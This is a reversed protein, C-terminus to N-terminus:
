YINPKFNLNFQVNKLLIIVQIEVTYRIAKVTLEFLIIEIDM